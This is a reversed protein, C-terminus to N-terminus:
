RLQVRIERVHPTLDDIAVLEPTHPRELAIELESFFQENLENLDVARDTEAPTGSTAALAPEPSGTNQSVTVSAPTGTPASSYFLTGAVLGVFLGAAAAVGFWRPVLRPRSPTPVHGQPHGPFSIVRAPHALHEIRRLIHQQQVRFMDTPFVDDLEADAESRLGNMFRRLDAYRAGCQACDALHEASPPEMPEGTQEALYCDFLQNEPLHHVRFIV